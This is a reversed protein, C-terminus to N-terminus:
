ARDARPVASRPAKTYNLVARATHKGKRGRRRAERRSDKTRSRSTTVRPCLLSGLVLRSVTTVHMVAQM